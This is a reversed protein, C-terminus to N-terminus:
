FRPINFLTNNTWHGLTIQEKSIITKTNKKKLLTQITAKLKHSKWVQSKNLLKIINPLALNKLNKKLIWNISHQM